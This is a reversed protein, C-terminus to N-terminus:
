AKGNDWDIFKTLILGQLGKKLFTVDDVPSTPQKLNIGTLRKNVIMIQVALRNTLILRQQSQIITVDDATSIPQNLNIM